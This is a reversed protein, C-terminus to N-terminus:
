EDWNKKDGTMLRYEEDSIPECEEGLEYNPGFRYHAFFYEDNGWHFGVDPFDNPDGMAHDLEIREVRLKRFKQWEKYAETGKVPKYADKLDGRLLKHWLTADPEHDFEFAM